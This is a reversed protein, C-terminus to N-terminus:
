PDIIIEPDEMLVKSNELDVNGGAQVVKFVAITYKFRLGSGKKDPDVLIDKAPSRYINGDKVGNAKEEFDGSDGMPTEWGFDVAFPHDCEWELDDTKKVHVRPCVIKDAADVKIPIIM